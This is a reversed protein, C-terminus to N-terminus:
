SPAFGFFREAVRTTQEAVHAEPEGVAAAVARLVYPLFSPENRRAPASRPTLFPADTEIMLRDRPITPILAALHAGRRADCIWGTIGVHLDLALYAELAARQGTFCHVVGGVLKPRWRSLIALFDDHAEREHLFVPMRRAAALELQMEFVSRQVPRPSFDRDYDLGCEGIAAVVPRHSLAELAAPSRPGVTRANHPHVGATCRLQEPRASALREAKESVDVNLGTVVMRDVGAGAARHLVEALDARFRRHTLNCGIDIM